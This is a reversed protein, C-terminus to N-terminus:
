YCRISLTPASHEQEMRELKLQMRKKTAYRASGGVMVLGAIMALTKCWWTQWVHPQLTLVVSAQESILLGAGQNTQGNAITLGILTVNANPLIEFVRVDVDGEISVAHGRADIVFFNSGLADPDIVIPATLTISCDETFVVVGNDLAADAIAQNLSDEDCNSVETQAHAPLNILSIM